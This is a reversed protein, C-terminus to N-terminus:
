NDKLTALDAAFVSLGEREFSGGAREVTVIASQYVAIDNSLLFSRRVFGNEDPEFSGLSQWRGDRDVWIQYTDGVPAPSLNTAVFYLLRQEEDWILRGVGRTNEGVPFVDAVETSSSLLSALLERDDRAATELEFARRDGLSVESKLSAIEVEQSLAQDVQTKLVNNQERLDDVDGRIMVMGTFSAVVALVAAIGVAARGTRAVHTRWRPTQAGSERLVRDRLHRPAEVRPASYALLAALEEADAVLVSCDDCDAIHLQILASVDRELAGVAYSDAMEQTIHPADM